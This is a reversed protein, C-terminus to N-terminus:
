LYLNNTNILTEEFRNQSISFDVLKEGKDCLPLIGIAYGGLDKTKKILSKDDGIYIITDSPNNNITDTLIEEKKVFTKGDENQFNNKSFGYIDIEKLSIGFENKFETIQRDTIIAIKIYNKRSFNELVRKFTTNALPSNIKPETSAITGNYDLVILTNIKNKFIEEFDSINKM